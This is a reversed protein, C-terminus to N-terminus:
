ATAVAAETRIPSSSPAGVRIMLTISAVVVWLLYLAEGLFFSNDSTLGVAANVFLALSVVGGSAALWRPVGGYLLGGVAVAALMFAEGLLSFVFAYDGMAFLAYATAPDTEGGRGNLVMSAPFSALDLTVALLGGILVGTAVAGAPEATRLRAYLVIAFVLEMLLAVMFLVTLTTGPSHHAAYRVISEGSSALSPSNPDSGGLNPLSALVIFLLGSGAALRTLWRRTM